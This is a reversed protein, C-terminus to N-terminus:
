GDGSMLVKKWDMNGDRCAFINELCQHVCRNLIMPIKSSSLLPRKLQIASIDVIGYQFRSEILLMSTSSLSSGRPFALFIM